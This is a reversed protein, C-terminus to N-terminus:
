PCDGHAVPVPESDTAIQEAKSTVRLPSFSLGMFRQGYTRPPSLARQQKLPSLALTLKMQPSAPPMRDRSAGNAVVAALPLSSALNGKPAPVRCLPSFTLEMMSAFEEPARLPSQELLCAYSSCGHPIRTPTFPEVDAGPTFSPSSQGRAASRPPTMLLTEDLLSSSDFGTLLRAISPSGQSVDLAEPILTGSLPEMATQREAGCWKTKEGKVPTSPSGLPRTSQARAARPPSPFTSDFLSTEFDEVSRRSKTPTFFVSDDNDDEDDEDETTSPTAARFMSRLPTPRPVFRPPPLYYTNNHSGNTEDIEQRPTSPNYVVKGTAKSVCQMTRAIRLPTPTFM